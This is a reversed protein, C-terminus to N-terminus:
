VFLKHALASSSGHNSRFICEPLGSLTVAGHDGRGEAEEIGGEDGFDGQLVKRMKEVQEANQESNAAFRKNYLHKNLLYEREKSTYRKNKHKQKAIDWRARQLAFPLFESNNM